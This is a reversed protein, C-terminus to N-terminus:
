SDVLRPFPAQKWKPAVSFPLYLGFRSSFFFVFRWSLWQSILHSLLRLLYLSDAVMQFSSPVSCLSSGLTVVMTAGGYVHSRFESKQGSPCQLRDKELGVRSPGQFSPNTKWGTPDVDEDYSQTKDKWYNEKSFCSSLWSDKRCLAGAGNWFHVNNQLSNHSRRFPAWKLSSAM